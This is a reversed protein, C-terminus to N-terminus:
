LFLYVQVIVNTTTFYFSRPPCYNLDLIMVLNKLKNEYFCLIIHIKYLYHSSAYSLQSFDKNQFSLYKHKQYVKMWTTFYFSTWDGYFFTEYSSCLFSKILEIFFDIQMLDAGLRYRTTISQQSSKIGSSM